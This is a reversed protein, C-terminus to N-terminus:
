VARESMSTWDVNLDHCVKQWRLRMEETGLRPVFGLKFYIKIAPMRFDDTKLFIDKYGARVLRDVVAACVAQGLGKGKHGPDGAVWGLEAQDYGAHQAASTAVLTGTSQHVVFFLGEPLVNKLVEKIYDLTWYTFGGQHMLHLYGQEDGPRFTRLFYGDPLIPKPIACGNNTPWVMRLQEPRAPKADPAPVPSPRAPRDFERSVKVPQGTRISEWAAACVAIVQAGDRVDVLPKQDHLICDEFHHLFGIIEGAHELQDKPPVVDREVPKGGPHYDCVIRDNFISAKTGYLGIGIGHFPRRWLNPPHVLDFAGLVRSIAGDPHKLSLIYNMAKDAPYRKELGSRGGLAYVEDIEGLVWRLLDVPHCVGGYMLDQPMEYRWPSVDFVPRMDHEYYAEALRIQGLEGDAALRHIEQFLSNWRMSQAVLLKLGTRDVLSVLARAEELSVCMPKTVIVHKGAELAATIQRCHLPCPSFIAVVQIDKRDLMQDYRDVVADVDFERAIEDLPKGIDYRQFKRQRDPEYLCRVKMRSNPDQNIRLLMTGLGTGAVGIGIDKKAQNM